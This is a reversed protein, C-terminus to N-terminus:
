FQQGFTFQLEEIRDFEKNTNFPIAYSISIPGIPAQWQLAIGASVRLADFSISEDGYVKGFATNNYADYNFSGAFVNGWDM